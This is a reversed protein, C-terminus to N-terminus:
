CPGIITHSYLHRPSMLDHSPLPLIPELNILHAHSLSTSHRGQTGPSTHLGVPTLTSYGLFLPVPFPTFYVFLIVLCNWRQSRSVRTFKSCCLKMKTDGVGLEFDLCGLLLMRGATDLMGM